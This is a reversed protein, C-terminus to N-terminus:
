QRTKDPKPLDGTRTLVFDTASFWRAQCPKGTFSTDTSIGYAISGDSVVINDINVISWGLGRNQSIFNKNASDIVIKMGLIEMRIQATGDPRRTMDLSDTMKQQIMEVLEGGENGYVPISKLTKEDGVAYICPGPGEARALCSLRYIGPEVAEEREAQYVAKCYENYGELYQKRSNGNYYQGSSSYYDCNEHKTLKWGNQRLFDDEEASDTTMYSEDQPWDSSPLDNYNSMTICCPVICCLAVLWLITWAIRQAVGMPKTKGTLSLVMRVIAYIPVLLLIFLFIVFAILVLPREQYLATLGMYEISFPLESSIPFALASILVIITFIFAFCLAIGIIIAIGIAFAITIKLLISFLTKLLNSSSNPQEKRDEVVVDAINQPTIDKGQMQLQQEPAKAEPLIIALAIYLILGIGYFFTFIVALLRWIVPDTGTYTALGSLVGAVMKDNPNRYLRKGATRTRINDFIGQAASQFSDYKHGEDGGSNKEDSDTLQEPEGIRTIIDKVHEITIAEIKQQHLEDFLEAIRAEIDDVIENGGEEKGFSSHLSEIYQRLLEYADEDIQFLRGCLNITINKKM